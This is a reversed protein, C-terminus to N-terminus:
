FIAPRDRAGLMSIIPQTNSRKNRSTRLLTKLSLVKLMKRLPPFLRSMSSIIFQLSTCKLMAKSSWNTASCRWRSLLATSPLSTMTQRRVDSSVICMTLLILSFSIWWWKWTVACKGVTIRYNRFQVRFFAATSRCHMRSSHPTVTPIQRRYTM